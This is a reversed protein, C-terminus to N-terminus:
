TQPVTPQSFKLPQQIPIMFAALYMRFRGGGSLHSPLPHRRRRSHTMVHWHIFLTIM